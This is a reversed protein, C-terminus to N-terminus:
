REERDHIKKKNINIEEKSYLTKRGYTISEINSFDFPTNYSSRGTNENIFTSVRGYDCGYTSSHEEGNELDIKLRRYDYKFSMSQNNYKIIINLTNAGEVSKVCDLIKKNLYLDAYMDKNNIIKQLLNQKYEYKLLQLGIKKKNEDIFDDALKEITKDKNNLYDNFINGNRFQKIGTIKYDDYPKDLEIIPKDNSIFVKVTSKYLDKLEYEALNDFEEKSLRKLKDANEFTYRKLYDDLGKIIEDSLYSFSMKKINPEKKSLTDIYYNSNYLVGEKRDYYGGVEYKESFLSSNFDRMYLIDFRDNYREKYVMIKTYSMDFESNTIENSNLFESFNM